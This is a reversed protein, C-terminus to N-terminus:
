TDSAIYSPFLKYRMCDVVFPEILSLFKRGEISGMRLRFKGKSKSLGWSVGWVEKFYKIALQCDEKNWYTNLTLEYSHIKGNRKKASLSGDDQYWIAIGVLTLNDLIKRTVKKTGDRYLKKRLIRFLPNSRTELRCGPYGNNDILSLKLDANQFLQLISQKWRAYEEQKQCHTFKVTNFRSIGADGLVMGIVASRKEKRTMLVAKM